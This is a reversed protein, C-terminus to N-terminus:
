ISESLWMAPKTIAYGNQGRGSGPQPRSKIPGRERWRSRGACAALNQVGTV